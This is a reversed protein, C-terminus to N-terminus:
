RIRRLLIALGSLLLLMGGPEPVVVAVNTFGGAGSDSAWQVNFAGGDFVKSFSNESLGPNFSALGSGFTLFPPQDDPWPLQMVNGDIFAEGVVGRFGPGSLPNTRVWQNSGASFGITWTSSNGLADTGPLNEGNCLLCSLTANPGGIFMAVIDIGDTDMTMVGAERTIPGVSTEVTGDTAFYYFDPIGDGPVGSVQAALPAICIATLISLATLITKLM